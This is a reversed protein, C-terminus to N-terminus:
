ICASSCGSAAAGAGTACSAPREATIKGDADVIDFWESRAYKRATYATRITRVILTLAIWVGFMIYLLASSVFAWVAQPSYFATVIILAIHLGVLLSMSRCTKRFAAIRSRAFELGKMYRKSMALLPNFRTFGGALLIALLFFEILAPKLKFYLTNGTGLSGLGLLVILGIDALVFKEVRRERVFTWGLELISFAIAILLSTKEPFFADALIFVLLPLM